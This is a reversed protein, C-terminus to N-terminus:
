AASLYRGAGAGDAGSGTLRLGAPPLHRRHVAADLAHRVRLMNARRRLLSLIAGVEAISRSITLGDCLSITKNTMASANNRFEGGLPECLPD